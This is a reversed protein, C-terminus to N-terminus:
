PEACSVQPGKKNPHFLLELCFLTPPLLLLKPSSLDARHDSRQGERGRSKGCSYNREGQRTTGDRAGHQSLGRRWKEVIRKGTEASSSGGEPPLLYPGGLKWKLRLCLM